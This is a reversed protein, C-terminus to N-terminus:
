ELRCDALENSSLQIGGARISRVSYDAIRFTEQKKRMRSRPMYTLHVTQASDCTLGGIWCDEPVIRYTRNLAYTGLACRKIFTVGFPDTYVISLITEPDAIACYLMDRGAHLRDRICMESGM